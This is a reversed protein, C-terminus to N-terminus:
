IPKGRKDDQAAHRGLDLMQVIRQKAVSRGLGAGCVLAQGGDDEGGATPLLHPV